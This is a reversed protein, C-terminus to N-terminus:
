KPFVLILDNELQYGVSEQKWSKAKDQLFKYVDKGRSRWDPADAFSEVVVVDEDAVKGTRKSTYTGTALIRTTGGFTNHLFNKVAGIRKKFEAKGVPKNFEKTSPVIIAMQRELRVSGKPARVAKRRLRKRRPM